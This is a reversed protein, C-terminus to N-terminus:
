ILLAEESQADHGAQTASKADMAIVYRSKGERKAEYMAADASSVLEGPSAALDPFVSIGISVGVRCQGGYLEHSLRGIRDILRQATEQLEVYTVLGHMWIVFEDGGMRAVVDDRRVSAKLLDAVRRLLKDGEPHGWTDNVQKFGDIDLYLCALRETDRAHEYAEVMAGIMRRNKLGTLPDQVLQADLRECTDVIYRFARLQRSAVTILMIAVLSIVVFLTVAAVRVLSHMDARTADLEEEWVRAAADFTRGADSATADISALCDEVSGREAVCNLSSLRGITVALSDHLWHLKDTRASDKIRVADFGRDVVVKAHQIESQYHVQFAPNDSRAALLAYRQADRVADVAEHNNALVAVLATEHSGLERWDDFELWLVSAVFILCCVVGMYVCLLRREERLITPAIPSM